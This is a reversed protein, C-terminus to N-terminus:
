RDTAKLISTKVSLLSKSMKEDIKNEQYAKSASDIAANAKVQLKNMIADPDFKSFWSM